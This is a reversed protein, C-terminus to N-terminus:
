RIPPQDADAHAMSFPASITQGHITPIARKPEGVIVAEHLNRSILGAETVATGRDTASAGLDGVAQHDRGAAGSRWTGSWEVARRGKLVYKM